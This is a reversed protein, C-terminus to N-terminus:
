DARRWRGADPPRRKRRVLELAYEDIGDASEIVSLQVGANLLGEITAVQGQLRGEERGEERGEQRGAERGEERGKREAEQQREHILQEVYNMADGGRGPVQRALEAVFRRRLPTKQTALVYVVIPRLADMGGQRHLTALLSTARQLLAWHDRYAAMMTLQAVRGRLQGRVVAEPGAASRDVLVHEYHPLWPWERVAAAFLEAFQTAHNWPKAGHYFVLPVIPRLQRARPYQRRDREWIRACYQHLRWRM